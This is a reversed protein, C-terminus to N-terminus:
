NVFQPFNFTRPKETFHYYGADWALAAEKDSSFGGIWVGAKCTSVHIKAMWVGDRLIIGKYLRNTTSQTSTVLTLTTSVRTRIWKM